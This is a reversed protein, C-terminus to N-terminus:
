KLQARRGEGVRREESRINGSAKGALEQLTRAHNLVISVEVEGNGARLQDVLDNANIENNLIYKGPVVLSGTYNKREMVWKLADPKKVIEMFVLADFVENENWGTHIYFTTSDGKMDLVPCYILRYFYYGTALVAGVILLVIFSFIRRKRKAM